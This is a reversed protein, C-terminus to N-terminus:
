GGPSLFQIPRLLLRRLAQDILKDYHQWVWSVYYDMARLLDAVLDQFDYPNMLRLYASIEAWAHEEAEEFTISVARDTNHAILPAPNPATTSPLVDADPHSARWESYLKVARRYFAEPDTLETHMKRGEDTITWIGKDKLLWGAKVCDVSAFRVIKDFRRGGSEYTDAEYSTLTVRGALAQLAASAQLGAPLAM